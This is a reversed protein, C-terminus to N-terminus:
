MKRIVAVLPDIRLRTRYLKKDRDLSPSNVKLLLKWLGSPHGVQLKGAPEIRSLTSTRYHLEGPGLDSFSSSPLIFM